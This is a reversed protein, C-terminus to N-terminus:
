KLSPLFNLKTNKTATKELLLSLLDKLIFLFKDWSFAIKGEFIVAFVFPKRVSDLTPRVFFVNKKKNLRHFFLVVNHKKGHFKVPNM